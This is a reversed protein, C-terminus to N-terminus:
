SRGSALTAALILHAIALWYVFGRHALTGAVLPEDIVARCQTFSTLVSPFLPLLRPPWHIPNQPLSELLNGISDEDKKQSNGLRGALM